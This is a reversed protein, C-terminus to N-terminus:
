RADTLTPFCLGLILVIMKVSRFFTSATSFWGQAFIAVAIAASRPDATANWCSGGRVVTLTEAVIGSLL